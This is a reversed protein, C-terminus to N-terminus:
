ADPDESGLEGARGSERYDGAAPSPVTPSTLLYTDDRGPIPLAEYPQIAVPDFDPIGAYPDEPEEDHVPLTFGGQFPMQPQAPPQPGRPRPPGAKARLRRDRMALAIGEEDSAAGGQEVYQATAEEWCYQTWPHELLAEQVFRTQIWHGQERHDYVWVVVPHYPDWRAEWRGGAQTLGSSRGQLGALERTPSQYTRNEVTIGKDTVTVWAPILLKRNEEPTMLRPRYGTGAVLAAYMMNPSVVMGPAYPNRLGKHPRQQHELAVWEYAMQQLQNLTWLPKRDLRKGRHELRRAAWGVVHQSFRDGLTRFYREALPKDTPCGKRALRVSIGLFDCATQFHESLYPSGQDIIITRPRIVPRAATAETFRPDAANLAAYPLSSGAAATLPSWGPRTPMPALAQALTLVIDFARTARGGSRKGVPGDGPVVPVMMVAMITRTAVDVMATLEVSIMKGNDGLAKIKLPCTDIQVLQGPLMAHSPTYPPPPKRVRSSRTSTPAQLLDSLGLDDMRRYYTARSFSLRKREAPDDLDIGFREKALRTIEDMHSDITSTSEDANAHAVERLLDLLRPDTRGTPLRARTKRGDVLALPNRNARLWKRRKAELAKVSIPKGRAALEAAKAAYRDGLTTRDPDYGARPKQGPRRVGTDIEMMDEHLRLLKKRQKRSLTGQMTGLAPLVSPEASTDDAALVQFDQSSLMSRYLADVPAGGAEPLLVVVGTDNKFAAVQYTTGLWTVRDGLGVDDGPAQGPLPRSM